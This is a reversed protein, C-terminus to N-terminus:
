CTYNGIDDEKSLLCNFHYCIRNIENRRAVESDTAIDHLIFSTILKCKADIAAEIISQKLYIFSDNDMNEPGPNFKLIFDAPVGLESRIKEINHSLEFATESPIVIGGYVFFEGSRPELNCNM